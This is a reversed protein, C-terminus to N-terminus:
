VRSGAVFRGCHCTGGQSCVVFKPCEKWRNLQFILSNRCSTTANGACSRAFRHCAPPSFFLASVNGAQDMHHTVVLNIKEGKTWVESILRNIGLQSQFNMNWCPVEGHPLSSEGNPDQCIIKPFDCSNDFQCCAPQEQSDPIEHIWSTNEVVNDIEETKNVLQLDQSPQSLYTLVKSHMKSYQTVVYGHSLLADCCSVQISLCGKEMCDQLPERNEKENEIRRKKRGCQTLRYQLCTLKTVHYTLHHKIYKGWEVHRSSWLLYSRITLTTSRFFGTRLQAMPPETESMGIDRRVWVLALKPCFTLSKSGANISFCFSCTILLNM